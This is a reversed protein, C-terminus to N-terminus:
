STLMRPQKTEIAFSSLSGKPENDKKVNKEELTSSFSLSLPEDDDRPKKEKLTFSSSSDPDRNM